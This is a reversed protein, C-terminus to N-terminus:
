HLRPIERHRVPPETWPISIPFVITMKPINKTALPKTLWLKSSWTYRMYIMPNRHADAFSGLLSTVSEAGSCRRHATRDQVTCRRNTPWNANRKNNSTEPDAARLCNQPLYQCIHILATYM